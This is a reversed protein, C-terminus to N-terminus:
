CRPGLGGEGERGERDSGNGRGDREQRVKSTPVKFGVLPDPSRQLSGLPTQPPARASILIPANLRLIQCRIVVIM